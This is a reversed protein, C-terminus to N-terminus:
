FSKQNYICVGQLAQSHIQLHSKLDEILYVLDPFFSICRMPSKLIFMRLQSFSLFLESNMSKIYTDPRPMVRSRFGTGMSDAM